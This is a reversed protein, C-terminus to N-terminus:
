QCSDVRSLTKLGRGSDEGASGWCTKVLSNFFFVAGYIQEWFHDMIM